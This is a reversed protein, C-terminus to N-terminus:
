SIAQNIQSVLARARSAAFGTYTRIDTQKLIEESSLYRTIRDEELIRQILDNVGGQQVVQWAAQAHERLIEHMEQRDAGKGVLAMLIREVASFPAYTELNKQVAHEHLNFGNVLKLATALLEDCILFAEPIFSRRNASDDLTRELLSTAANSWAIPPITALSRALSDIKEAQIPNRKFPMASSGVQFKGFPESWEGFLPSQLIRLDFAFKHLTAGIGALSSVLRYDQLRPYTQTTVSFFPIELKKSLGDEFADLNELGILDAYAAGVGVAGKFGKGRIDQLLTSLEQYLGLLDQAYLALRYGVTTPEAPQIHTFGLCTIEATSDIRKMFAALLQKLQGLLLALSQRIRLADANDEIDMSTAGLHLAGGGAPCQEAFTTLEAMLDHHIVSEIELARPIDVRQMARRMDEIQEASVLGYESQTEALAVWVKRWILRKNKESWIARMEASAYRWSYPSQYVEYDIMPPNERKLSETIAPRLPMQHCNNLHTCGGM